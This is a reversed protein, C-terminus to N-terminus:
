LTNVGNTPNNTITPGIQPYNINKFLIFVIICIDVNVPNKTKSLSIVLITRTSNFITTPLHNSKNNIKNLQLPNPKYKLPDM